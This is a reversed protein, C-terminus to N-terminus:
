AAAMVVVEGIALRVFPAVGEAGAELAAITRSRHWWGIVGLIIAAVAKLILLVGYRSDLGGLGGINIWTALLGSGVLLAFCWAAISSYRRTTIALHSGGAEQPPRGRSDRLSPGVVLLAVLGGIWVTASVLHFALANVGSMHDLSAASHGSLALPLLALVSGACAWALAG